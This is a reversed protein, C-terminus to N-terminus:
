DWYGSSVWATIAAAYSEPSEEWANHSNEMVTLQSHPLVEALKEPDALKLFPDNRAALICVPTQIDPLLGALEALDTPYARVYEISEVFRTGSYSAVYDDVVFEPPTYGPISKVAGGAVEAPDLARFPDLSPAEIFQQLLGMTQLPSTAAGGGIIISAVSGPHFAATFLLAATGVDPGVVHPRTIKLADIIEPIFSGVAKPSMLEPRGDSQGFGPLDVALLDFSGTLHSWM